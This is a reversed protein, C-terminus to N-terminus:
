SPIPAMIWMSCRDKRGKSCSRPAPASRRSAGGAGRGRGLALLRPALAELTRLTQTVDARKTSGFHASSRMPTISVGAGGPGGFAGPPASGPGPRRPAAVKDEYAPGIAPAGHHWDGPQGLERRGVAKHYPLVLHARDHCVLRGEVDVRGKVLRDIETFLTEPDLVVGNGIACRVGPHLIGSPIQQLIFCSTGLDSRTGPMRAVRTACLGIPASPLCMLWSGKARMEGSRARRCRRDPHQHRVHGCSLPFQAKATPVPRVKVPRRPCSDPSCVSVTPQPGRSGVWRRRGFALMLPWGWSRKSTACRRWRAVRRATAAGDRPSGRRAGSSQPYRRGARADSALTREM